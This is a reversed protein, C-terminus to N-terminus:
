PATDASDLDGVGGVPAVSKLILQILKTQRAVGTKAFLASLHSKATNRSIALEASAEDLTLGNVLLLALTAEARTFGFLEALIAVPAMRRQRPDSVFIAVAPSSRSEAAESRPLTRLLQGLGPGDGIDPVRFAKVFGPESRRHAEVMQAVLERFAKNTSRNGVQLTGDSLQLGLGGELLQRAARNVKLVLAQEDLLLVGMALQDIADLYLTRESESSQLRTHLEIAQALHPLLLECLRRDDSDFDAQGQPRTVRLRASLGSNAVLDAGMINFVDIPELYERYYDSHVLEAAPVFERLTVVKGLPLNVFPDLAFYSDNYSQYVHPAVIAANLVVGSDFESPPRLLLTAFNGDVTRRFLNLFGQFPREELPGRYVARILADLEPSLAHAVM